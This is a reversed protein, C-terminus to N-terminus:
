IFYYLFKDYINKKKNWKGYGTNDTHNDFYLKIEKIENIYKNLCNANETVDNIEQCEQVGM